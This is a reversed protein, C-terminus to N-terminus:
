NRKNDAAAKPRDHNLQLPLRRSVGSRLSRPSVTKLEGEVLVNTYGKSLLWETADRTGRLVAAENKLREDQGFYFYGVIAVMGLEDARDLIRGLRNLYGPRLSGDSEFASNHWPQGQSYGEP